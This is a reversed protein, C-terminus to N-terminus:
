KMRKPFTKVDAESVWQTVKAEYAAQQKATLLSSRVSEKQEDTMEQAGSEIDTAYQLIHYGYSTEVLGSLSGVSELAMAADQFSQEYQTLGECVLYGQTKAPESNMGPDKGLEEILADFDEGAEARALAAEADPRIAGFAKQAAADLKAQAEDRASTQEALTAELQTRQQQLEETVEGEAEDIEQIQSAAADVANQATEVEAKLSNITEQDEEGLTILLNKVGRYGEPIYYVDSGSNKAAAYSTPTADYTEKQTALRTEYETMVDEDTVEIGEDEYIRNRLKEDKAQVTRSEILSERTYGLAILDTTLMEDLQANTITAKPTEPEEATEEVTEAATALETADVSQTVTEEATEAAEAEEASALAEVGEAEETADAQAVEETEPQEEPENKAALREAEEEVTELEPYNQYRLMMKYFDMMSDAYTEIEATEEETLPTVGLEDMKANVVKSEILQKLADESMDEPNVPFDAGFYQQYYSQMTSALNERYALWEGKTIQEGGVSAVIQAHDLETDHGILNCGSLLALALLMMALILVKKM